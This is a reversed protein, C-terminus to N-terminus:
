KSVLRNGVGIGLAILLWIIVKYRRSLKSWRDRLKVEWQVRSDYSM